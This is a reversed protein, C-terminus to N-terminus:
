IIINSSLRYCNNIVIQAVHVEEQELNQLSVTM